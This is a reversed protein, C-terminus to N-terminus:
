GQEGRRNHFDIEKEVSPHDATKQGRRANSNSAQDMQKAPLKSQRRVLEPLVCLAVFINLSLYLLLFVTLSTEKEFPCGLM